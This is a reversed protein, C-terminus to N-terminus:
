FVNKPNIESSLVYSKKDNLNFELTVITGLFRNKFGAAFIIGNKEQWFGNSSIIQLSGQNLFLFDRILGLGLGGPINGNRTTNGSQVAWSIADKGSINSGSSFYNNVNKRITIGMDSITFFLRMSDKEYNGCSYVYDCRGHLHANNYIEWLSKLIKKKLELSINPFDQFSLLRDNVYKLFVGTDNLSFKQFEIDSAIGIHGESPYPPQFKKRNFLATLEPPMNMFHIINKRKALDAILAGLPSCLHGKFTNNQKFDFIITRSSFNWTQISISSLFEYGDQDSLFNSPFSFEKYDSQM